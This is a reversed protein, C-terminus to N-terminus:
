LMGPNPVAARPGGLPSRQGHLPRPRRDPVRGRPAGQAGPQSRPRLHRDPGGAGGQHPRRAGPRRSRRRAPAADPAAAPGRAGAPGARVRLRGPGGRGRDRVPRRVTVRKGLVRPGGGACRGDLRARARRGRRRVRGAHGPRAVPLQTASGELYLNPWLPDMGARVYLPLARPDASAFTTRRPAEGFLAEILARGIGRGANQPMVVLEALHLAHGADIVAGFEVAVGDELALM